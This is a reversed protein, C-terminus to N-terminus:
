FLEAYNTTDPEHKNNDEFLEIDGEGHKMTNDHIERESKMTYKKKINEISHRSAESESIYFTESTQTLKTIIKKALEDFFDYYKVSRIATLMKDTINRTYEGNEKFISSITEKKEKIAPLFEQEFQSLISLLKNQEEKNCENVLHNDTKMKVASIKNIQESLYTTTSKIDDFLGESQTKSSEKPKNVNSDKNLAANFSSELQKTLEDIKKFNNDISELEDSLKLYQEDVQLNADNLKKRLHYNTSIMDEIKCFSPENNNMSFKNCLDVILIMNDSFSLLEESINDMAMEYEKNVNLLQSAQIRAIDGVQILYKVIDKKTIKDDNERYRTLQQIINAHAEQIHEIKQRIIDHYQLEIIIKNSNGINEQINGSLEPIKLSVARHKALFQEKCIRINDLVKDLQDFYSLEISKIKKKTINLSDMISITGEDFLTYFERIPNFILDPDSISSGKDPSLQGYIKLNALVINLSSIHQNLNKGPILMKEINGRLDYIFREISEIKTIFKSYYNGLHTYYDEIQSIFGTSNNGPNLLEFASKANESIKTAKRNYERFQNRMLTFDDAACRHLQIIGKNIEDFISIIENLYERDLVKDNLIDKLINKTM